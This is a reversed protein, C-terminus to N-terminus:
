SPVEPQCTGISRVVLDSLSVAYEGQGFVRGLRKALHTSHQALVFSGVMGGWIQATVMAPELEKRISGDSQGREIANLYTSIVREIHKAHEEAAPSPESAPGDILHRLFLRRLELPDREMSQQQERILRAVLDLGTSADAQAEGFAQLIPRRRKLLLGMLLDNKNKFYLYLTGKAVEAAVAIDDVTVNDFGKELFLHEAAELIHNRRAERERRRRDAVTM